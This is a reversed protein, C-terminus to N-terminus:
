AKSMYVKKSSHSPRCSYSKGGFGIRGLSIYFGSFFQFAPFGHISRDSQLLSDLFFISTTQEAVMGDLRIESNDMLDKVTAIWGDAPNDEVDIRAESCM